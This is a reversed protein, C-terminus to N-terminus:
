RSPRARCTATPLFPDFCGDCLGDCLHRVFFFYRQATASINPNGRRAFTKICCPFRETQWAASMFMRSIGGLFSERMSRSARRRAPGSMAAWETPAVDAHNRGASSASTVGAPVAAPISQAEEHRPAVNPAPYRRPRPAEPTDMRTQTTAPQASPDSRSSTSRSTGAAMPAALTTPPTATLLHSIGSNPRKDLASCKM